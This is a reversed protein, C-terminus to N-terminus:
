AATEIELPVGERASHGTPDSRCHALLFPDTVKIRIRTREDGAILLAQGQAAGVLFEREGQSLKFVRGLDDMVGETGQRLLLKTASNNVIALGLPTSLVDGLDQSILILGCDYKRSRKAITWVVKNATPNEVLLLFGEDVVLLRRRRDTRVRKWVESLVEGAATGLEEEAVEGLSYCILRAGEPVAEGPRVVVGGLALAVAEYEGEPDLIEVQVGREVEWGIRYKVGFSKGGGSSGLITTNHNPLAFVDVFAPGGTAMVQGMLVGAQPHGAFTGTAFPFVSGVADSTLHRQGLRLYDRGLPLTTWRGDQQRFLAPEIKLGLKRCRRKAAVTEAELEARTSGHVALYLGVRHLRGRGRIVKTAAGIADALSGAIGINGRELAVTSGYREIMDNLQDTAKDEDIPTVHMTVDVLGRHSLIQQLWAPDVDRPWKTVLFTRTFSM